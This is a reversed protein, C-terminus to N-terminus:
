GLAGEIAARIDAESRIEIPRDNVFITPTGQVGLARGADFDAQVRERTEPDAVAADYAALDLGLDSAFGRFVEAKSDQQEGWQAQTEFMRQYMAEFEGQQAAAEVAVAANMSNQHAPIPFYRVAFTVRDGFEARLREMSPHVAGCVECEFDLFEVVTVTSGAPDDLRHSDDAIAPPYSTSAPQARNAQNVASTIWVTAVVIVVILALVITWITSAKLGYPRPPAVPSRSGHTSRADSPRTNATKRTNSTKRNNSTSRNM